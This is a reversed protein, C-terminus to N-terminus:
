AELGEVPETLYVYVTDPPFIEVYLIKGEIKKRVEDDIDIRDGEIKAKVRYRYVM